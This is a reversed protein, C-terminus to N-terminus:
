QIKCKFIIFITFTINYTNYWLFLCLKHQYRQIWDLVVSHMQAKGKNTVEERFTSCLSEKDVIHKSIQEVSTYGNESNSICVGTLFLNALWM